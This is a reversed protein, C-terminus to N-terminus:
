FNRKMAVQKFSAIVNREGQDLVKYSVVYRDVMCYYTNRYERSPMITGMHVVKQEVRHLLSIKYDITEQQTFHDSKMQQFRSRVTETWQVIM